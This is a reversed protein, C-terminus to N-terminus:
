CYPFRCTNERPTGGFERCINRRVLKMKWERPPWQLITSRSLVLIPKASACSERNTTPTYTYNSYRIQFCCSRPFFVCSGNRMRSVTHIEIKGGTPNDCTTPCLKCGLTTLSSAPAFNPFYPPGAGTPFRICDHLGKVTTEELEWPESPTALSCIVTMRVVGCELSVAFWISGTRLPIKKDFIPAKSKGSWDVNPILHLRSCWM